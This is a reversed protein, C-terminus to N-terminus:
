FAKVVKADGFGLAAVQERAASAAAEDSWPGVVVRYLQIGGRQLPRIAAQGAAGLKAMVKEANARDSFAGAQVAYGGAMVAAAKPPAIAQVAIAAKAPSAVPVAVPAPTPAPAVAAYTRAPAASDLPAPRLYRVRVKAVSRQGYGLADAAARSLEIVRGPQTAGRDNVRVELRRGTEMNTVEVISPMPLTAHAASIVGPEFREGDALGKASPTYVAGQGVDDYRPQEAPVFWLGNAQYPAGVSYRTAGVGSPQAAPAALMARNSAPGASAQGTSACAGLGLSLAAAVVVACNRLPLAYAQM